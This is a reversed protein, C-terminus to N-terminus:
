TDVIIKRTPTEIVLAHISMILKGDPDVFHPRLWSIDSVSAPTAQPLLFRTGGAVQMEIVRTIKVAGIQWTQNSQQTTDQM